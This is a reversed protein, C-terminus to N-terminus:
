LLVAYHVVNPAYIGTFNARPPNPGSGALFQDLPITSYIVAGNGYAYAFTVLRNHSLADAPDPRWLILKAGAPLSNANIFGHSSFSGNDLATDNLGNVVPSTADLINIDNSGPTTLDHQGTFGSGGPLISGPGAAGTVYRDHLVLIMGGAVAAQVSSLRSLYEAGYSSNSPNQVFLVNVGSLDSSQLDFLQVVTDGPAAVATIPPVQTSNGAGLSMDYYGVKVAHAPYAPLVALALALALGPILPRSM